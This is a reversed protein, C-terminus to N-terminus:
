KLNNFIYKKLESTSIFVRRKYYINDVKEKKEKKEKKDRELESYKIVKNYHESFIQLLDFRITYNYTPSVVSCKYHREYNDDTLIDDIWYYLDTKKFFELELNPNIKDYRSTDFSTVNINKGDEHFVSIIDDIFKPFKIIIYSKSRQEIIKEILLNSLNNDENNFFLIKSENLERLENLENIKNIFKIDIQDLTSLIIVLKENKGGRKSINNIKSKLTKFLSEDYYDPLIYSIRNEDKEEKEDKEEHFTINSISVDLDM